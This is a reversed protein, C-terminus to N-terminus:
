RSFRTVVEVHPSDTFLDVLTSGEHRWGAETLLRADRGLSGADCSVLALRQAGTAGVKAVGDRALGNRPPDAVVVGAQSPRWREVASRVVRADADALNVKADAVSSRSREVAVVPRGRGVTAAFLGVGCYLDVLPALPDAGELAAAVVDVLAAAGDPRSQFFSEASVRLRVDHIVEHIWARKGAALQDAGVVLVDDPLEVEGVKPAVLALREGTAAGARLTVEDARGFRGALLMEEVLPHAVRCTDVAIRDHGHAARYGARGETVAARVTTRFGSAPLQPGPDVLPADLRGIRELAETVMDVKLRRQAPLSVHAFGCGGCGHGIHPCVPEVRDAAAELVEDVSGRAFSKHESRIQVRVQEGPLAGEVFVVRGSPDRAVGEGGVAIADIHLDITM